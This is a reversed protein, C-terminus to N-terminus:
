VRDGGGDRKRENSEQGVLRLGAAKMVEMLNYLGLAELGM